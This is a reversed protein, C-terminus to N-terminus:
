ALRMLRHDADARFQGLRPDAFQEGAGADVHIAELAIEVGVGLRDVGNQRAVVILGLREAELPVGDKMTPLNRTGPTRVM